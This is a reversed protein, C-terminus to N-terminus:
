FGGRPLGLFLALFGLARLLRHFLPLFGLGHARGDIESSESNRQLVRRVRRVLLEVLDFAWEDIVVGVRVREPGREGTPFEDQWHPGHLALAHRKSGIFQFVDEDLVSRGASGWGSARMAGIPAASRLDM